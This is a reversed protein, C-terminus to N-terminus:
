GMLREYLEQQREIARAYVNHRTMDPEFVEGFEARTKELNDIKGIAELALLASGRCSAERAVSLKVPRGLVDAIMRSWARSSLLANGSAIIAAEPAIAELARALLAFRYCVAEMAAQLIESPQTRSTLGTITGRASTAWDTSREGSWFPLITLGHADPKMAVIERDLEDGLQDPSLTEKMWRYLGGGDSLAGGIVVRNRDVRYCFLERPLSAPPDGAFVVRMAGSTGIMLAARERTVCGAGINNTAGDGIAPLWAARDLPAWRRAYENRLRHTTGPQAIRPMQEMAVGFTKLLGGDWECTRQDLLGTSSAMSVSTTTEGFLRLALYDAFSLWRMTGDFLEGRENKLWLFKAPWYSPHFRCGTRIHVAQEDLKTRLEEAFNAARTDAWGLLPTIARGQDDVGLLSHWFCAIAVYDIRQVLALARELLIDIASTVLEVLADADTDVGGRLTPYLDSALTTLSDPIENGRGDFLLARVGSTGIDLALVIPGEPEALVSASMLSALEPAGELSVEDLVTSM